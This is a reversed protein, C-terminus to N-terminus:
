RLLGPKLGIDQEYTGLKKNESAAAQGKIELKLHNLRSRALEAAPLDPFSEIIKELTPRVTDYDAGARIQLDALLNLWHAVHRAPQDPQGALQKLEQAALDLRHYHTAYLIALKERAETDLPHQELQKVFDAALKEPAIEAPALDRLTGRLGASPLGEPVVVPRRDHASLLIKEVGGLHAIRQAAAAALATGPFKAIIKELATRASDTDQAFKLHWDALLTLAAAVQKPPAKEWDCFHNLTIEASPLDKTDEAQITALLLVGEYDHPFKALQERVAVIAELPHNLKRKALAISYYPKSEIEVKGGDYLSAIPNAILDIIGHRWTVVMVISSLLAVALGYLAAFGGAGFNPLAVFFEFWLAVGTVIWKFILKPPDDSRKLLWVALWICFGVAILSLVVNWIIQLIQSM